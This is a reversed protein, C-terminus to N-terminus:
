FLFLTAVRRGEAALLNYTRAAAGNDMVELGVRKSLVHGLIAPAPFHQRMGSGLLILEPQRELVRDLHAITLSAVGDPWHDPFSQEPLLLFSQRFEVDDVAIRDASVFRVVHIGEARQEVLSM